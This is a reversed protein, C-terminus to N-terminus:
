HFVPFTPLLERLDIASLGRSSSTPHKAQDGSFAPRSAPSSTPMAGSPTAAVLSM